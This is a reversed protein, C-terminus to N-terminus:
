GHKWGIRSSPRPGSPRTNRAVEHLVTVSVLLAGILWREAGLAVAAALLCSLSYASSRLRTPNAM